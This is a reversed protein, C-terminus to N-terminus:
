GAPLRWQMFHREVRGLVANLLLVMLSLVLLGAFVESTEFFNSAQLIRFGIGRDCSIFEGIIAGVLGMPVAIRAGTIWHPFVAPLKLTSWLQWRSAGNMRVIDLLNRDISLLGSLTNYFMIFFVLSASLVVKPTTGVGFWLIFLPALASKPIGYLVTLYPGAFARVRPMESLLFALLTALGAGFTFGLLLERLTAEVDLWFDPTVVWARLAGGVESPSSVFFPDLLTGSAWSWLALLAVVFLVHRAGNRLVAMGGLVAHQKRRQPRSSTSDAEPTASVTVPGVVFESEPAQVKRVDQV